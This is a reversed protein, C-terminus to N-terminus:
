PQQTLRFSQAPTGDCTRQVLQVSDATSANPVTLCKASLRSVFHYTGGSESVPQWQQNTGGGYTWQQLPAGDAVSVNTVDIVQVSNNRNNIRAFGDSTPQVQFQQAFTNNCAYQQIAAGSTTAAARVDVCKGNGGNVLTYWATPSIPGSPDPTPEPTPTTSVGGLWKLGDIVFRNQVESSFTSSLGTNDSYNMDNHGFNAYLMKYNKNTWM